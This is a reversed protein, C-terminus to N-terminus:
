LITEVLLYIPSFPSPKVFSQRFSTYTLNSIFAFSFRNGSPHRIDYNIIENQSNCGIDCHIQINALNSPLGSFQVVEWIPGHSYFKASLLAGSV